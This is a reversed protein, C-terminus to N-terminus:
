LRHEKIINPFAIFIQGDFQRVVKLITNFFFIQKEPAYKVNEVYLSLKM